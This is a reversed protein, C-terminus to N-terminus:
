MQLTELALALVAQLDSCIEKLKVVTSEKFPYLARQFQSRLKQSWGRNTQLARNIKSLKKKLAVLGGECMQISEEVRAVVDKSFQSQQISRKLYLFTKTLREVSDYMRKVDDEAEKWSEYFKLLEKCVTLGLSVIGVASSAVSFGDM